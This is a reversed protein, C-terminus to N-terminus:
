TTPIAKLLYARTGTQNAGRADRYTYSGYVSIDGFNNIGTANTLTVKSGSFTPDTLVLNNLDKIVGNNWVFARNQLSSNQSVGVVQGFQNIGATADTAGGLSGINTKQGNQLLSGQLRYQLRFTRAHSAIGYPIAWVGSRCDGSAITRQFARVNSIM